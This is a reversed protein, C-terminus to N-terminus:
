RRLVAVAEVHASWLFQDIPTVLGLRYGGDVLTRCDRALTGADCSVMVIGSVSSRALMESQAKAGARPPDLVVADFGELEKLSLPERFLDRVRTTIPKLGQTYRTATALAALADTESDVAFVSAQRALPLSLTGVGAFLDAIRKTQKPLGAVVAAIIAAEAAAVAQFFAGPPVPIAGAPIPLMPANPTVITERGITLRAFGAASALTALRASLAGTLPVMSGTVQVDLGGTLDAVAIRLADTERPKALLAATEALRPLADRMRATIVRCDPIAVVDASRPAHFGVVLDRAGPSRAVSFTARRRSQPPVRVLAAIEPSLGRQAFATVVLERKWDAYLRDAMHQANCGGCTGFHQCPPAVRDPSSLIVAGRGGDAVQEGPLAGAVYVPRGDPGRAVGDGGAGLHEITLPAARETM